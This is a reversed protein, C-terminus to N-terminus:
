TRMARVESSAAILIVSPASFGDGGLRNRKASQLAVYMFRLLCRLMIIRKMFIKNNPNRLLTTVAM